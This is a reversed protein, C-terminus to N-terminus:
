LYLLSSLDGPDSAGWGDLQSSLFWQSNLYKILEAKFPSRWNVMVGYFIHPLHRKGGKGTFYGHQSYESDQRQGSWSSSESSSIVPLTSSPTTSCRPWSWSYTPATTPSCCWPAVGPVPPFKYNIWFLFQAKVCRGQISQHFKINITVPCIFLFKGETWM